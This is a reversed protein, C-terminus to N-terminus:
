CLPITSPVDDVIDVVLNSYTGTVWPSIENPPANSIQAQLSNLGLVLSLLCTLLITFITKHSIGLYNLTSNHAEISNLNITGTDHLDLTHPIRCTTPLKQKMVFKNSFQYGPSGASIASDGLYDPTLC